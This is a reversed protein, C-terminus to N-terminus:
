TNLRPKDTIETEAAPRMVNEVQGTREETLTVLSAFVVNQSRSFRNERM